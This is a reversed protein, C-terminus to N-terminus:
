TLAISILLEDVTLSSCKTYIQDKSSPSQGSRLILELLDKSTCESKLGDVVGYLSDEFNNGEIALVLSHPHCSHLAALKISSTGHLAAIPSLSRRQM